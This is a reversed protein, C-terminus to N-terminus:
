KEGLPRGSPKFLRLQGAGARIREYKDFECLAHEIDSVRLRPYESPWRGRQEAALARMEDLAQEERAPADVARGHVRNLGRASGPGVPSWDAVDSADKLYRTHSLDLAVQYAVFPGWGHFRTLWAVTERMTAHREPWEDRADWLPQLLRRVIHTSSDGQSEKGTVLRYAGGYTKVGRRMRDHLTALARDPNWVGPFGLEELTDPWNIRRAVCAAFWLRAHKYAAFM